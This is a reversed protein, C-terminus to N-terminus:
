DVLYTVCFQADTTSGFTPTGTTTLIWYDTSGSAVHVRAIQDLGYVTHTGLGSDAVSLTIPPRVKFVDAANIAPGTKDAWTSASPNASFQYAKFTATQADKFNLRISQVIGGSDPSGTGIGRFSPFLVILPEVENNAGYAASATVLFTAGTCAEISMGGTTTINGGQAFASGALGLWLALLVLCKKM